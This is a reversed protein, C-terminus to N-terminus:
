KEQQKDQSKTKVIQRTLYFGWPSSSNSTWVELSRWSKCSWRCHLICSSHIAQLSIQSSKRRQGYPGFISCPCISLSPHLTSHQLYSVPVSPNFFGTTCYPPWYCTRYPAGEMWVVSEVIACRRLSFSLILTYIKGVTSMCYAEIVSIKQMLYTTRRQYRNLVWIKSTM